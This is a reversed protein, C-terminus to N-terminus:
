PLLLQPHILHGLYPRKVGGSIGVSSCAEGAPIGQEAVTVSAGHMM